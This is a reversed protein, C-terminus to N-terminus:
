TFQMGNSAEGKVYIVSTCTGIIQFLCAIKPKTGSVFCVPKVENEKWHPADYFKTNNDDKIPVLGDGSFSLSTLKVSYGFNTTQAYAQFAYISFFSALLCCKFIQFVYNKM